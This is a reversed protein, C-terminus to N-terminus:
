QVSGINLLVANKDDSAPALGHTNEPNTEQEALETAMTNLIQSTDMEIHLDECVPTMAIISTSLDQSLGEPVPGVWAEQRESWIRYSFNGPFYKVTQCKLCTVTHGHKGSFTYCSTEIMSEHYAITALINNGGLM